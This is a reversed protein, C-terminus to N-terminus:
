SKGGFVFRKRFLQKVGGALLALAVARGLGPLLALRAEDLVALLQARRQRGHAQFQHLHAILVGPALRLETLDDFGQGSLGDFDVPAAGLVLQQALLLDAERDVQLLRLFALSLGAVLEVLERCGVGAFGGMNGLQHSLDAVM